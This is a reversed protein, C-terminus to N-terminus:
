DCELHHSCSSNKWFVSKAISKLVTSIEDTGSHIIELHHFIHIYCTIDQFTVNFSIPWPVSLHPSPAVTRNLSPAFTGRRPSGTGSLRPALPIAMLKLTNNKHHSYCFNGRRKFSPHGPCNIIQHKCIKNGPRPPQNM